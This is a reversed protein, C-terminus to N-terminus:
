ALSPYLSRATRNFIWEQEEEPLWEFAQLNDTVIEKLTGPSAPFNSGWAIRTAGFEKVVRSFFTEPTAKGERAMRIIVSSVKLYINDHRALAFLPEADDYPPGNEISPSMLHDIVIRVNPFREILVNLQPIGQIRAQVCVPMGLEAACEWGAFSRPDALWDGQGQMTSGATFLRIGTMGRQAWYRIKEAADPALMDVSGVGTFREPHAQVADMCYSNDFGYCTSSHVIAAKAVGAEDMSALLHEYSTPREQSWVSQKGGLPNRPYKKEDTSIVHPHIDIISTPM